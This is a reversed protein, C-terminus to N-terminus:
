IIKIFINELSTENEEVAFGVYKSRLLNKLASVESLVGIKLISSVKGNACSKKETTYKSWLNLKYSVPEASEKM